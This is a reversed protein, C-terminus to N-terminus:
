SLVHFKGSDALTSVNGFIPEILRDYRIFRNAVIVLKGGPKLVQYSQEILVQAMQYNVSHGAHFPPNSLVLDYQYTSVPALLDGAFVQTNGIRNVALTETCAAIALLDNDVLHVIAAGQAAAGLGIVGYGCGVDLVRDGPSVSAAQLLMRTGEDVHDYSFVGPLSRITFPRGSLTTTFEVWSGPSIGPWTVWEPQPSEGPRKIFRGIRNGKKYALVNGNSFLGQADKIASHIGAANAGALYLNGEQVLGHYAQVLWRRNLQRGKPLQLYVTDFSGYLSQPLEISALLEVSSVHNTELSMHAMELSILSHDTIYIELTPYTHALFAAVAGLHCGFMLMRSEPTISANELFLNSSHALSSWGPLGPKSMHMLKQYGIEVTIQQVQTYLATLTSSM